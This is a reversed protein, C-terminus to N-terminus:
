NKNETFAPLNQTVIATWGQQFNNVAFAPHHPAITELGTHTVRVRTNEGEEMFEFTVLSDGPYGEYRWTHSLKKGPIAETIRCLHVFKPGEEPGGSFSFEFGPEPRFGPVDFYWQKMQAPDTYANWVRDATAAVLHEVVIPSSM